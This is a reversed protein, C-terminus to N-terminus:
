CSRKTGIVARASAALSSLDQPRSDPDKSLCLMIQEGMVQPVSLEEPLPEPADKEHAYALEFATGGSFPTRGALLEYVVCGIAYTDSANNPSNTKALEPSTYLASSLSQATSGVGYRADGPAPFVRRSAAFDVVKVVAAGSSATVYVNSPKFDGHVAGLVRANEFADCIQVIFKATLALDSCVGWQALATALSIGDIFDAIIYPRLSYQQPLAGFALTRGINEHQLGAVIMQEREFHKMSRQECEIERHLVKIVVREGTEQQKGEFVDFLGGIGIKEGPEYVKSLPSPLPPLESLALQDTPCMVFFGEFECGCVPCVKTQLRKRQEDDLTLAEFSKWEKGACAADNTTADTM